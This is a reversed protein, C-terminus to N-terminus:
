EARRRQLIAGAFTVLGGAVVSVFIHEGFVILMAALGGSTPGLNGSSRWQQQCELAYYRWLVTGYVGRGNYFSMPYFIATGIFVVFFGLLFWV